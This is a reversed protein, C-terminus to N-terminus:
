LVCCPLLFISRERGEVATSSRHGYQGKVEGVRGAVVLQPLDEDWEQLVRHVITECHHHPRFTIEKFSPLPLDAGALANFQGNLLVLELQLPGELVVGVREQFVNIATFKVVFGAGLRAHTHIVQKLVNLAHQQRIQLLSRSRRPLRFHLPATTILHHLQPIPHVASYFPPRRTTPSVLRSHACLLIWYNITVHVKYVKVKKCKKKRYQCYCNPTCYVVKLYNNCLCHPMHNNNYVCNM